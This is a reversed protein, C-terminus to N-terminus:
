GATAIGPPEGGDGRTCAGPLPGTNLIQIRSGADVEVRGSLSLLPDALGLHAFPAHDPVVIRASTPRMRAVSRFELLRRDGQVTGFAAGRAPVPPAWRVEPRTATVLPGDEAEVDFRVRGDQVTRTFGALQKPLGFLELGGAQSRTSDVYIHSIWGGRRRGARVLGSIVVLENYPFVSGPGYEVIGIAGLTRGPRVQVVDLDAPVHARAEAVDILSAAVLTTASLRWPPPPYAVGDQEVNALVAKTSM